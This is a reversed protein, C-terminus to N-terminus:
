LSPYNANNAVGCMNDKNRALFMYGNMGWSEGWCNKIIWFQEGKDTHGYGVVLAYISGSVGCNKDSFVGSKYHHFSDSVGIVVSVPGLYAVGAQLDSERGRSIAISGSCMAGVTSRNFECKGCDKELYPYSDETDIGNNDAVYQFSFTTQGGHCGISLPDCDIINQESLSVLKGTKRFNQGELAGTAAFAYDSACKNGKNKIPTVAGKKIWDIAEPLVEEFTQITEKDASPHEALGTLLRLKEEVTMDSYENIGVTYSHLGLDTQLNHIAIFEVNRGFARRRYTEQLEDAYHKNHTLKFKIWLETLQDDNLADVVLLECHLLQQLLVVVGCWM